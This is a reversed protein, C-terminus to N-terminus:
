FKIQDYSKLAQYLIRSDAGTLAVALVRERRSGDKERAKLIVIGTEISIALVELPDDDLPIVQHKTADQHMVALQRQDKDNWWVYAIMSGDPSIQVSEIRDSDFVQVMPHLERGRYIGQPLTDSAGTLIIPTESDDAFVVDLVDGLQCTWNTLVGFPTGVAESLPSRNNDVVVVADGLMEEARDRLEFRYIGDRVVRGLDDLGDWDIQGYQAQEVRSSAFKRVVAGSEDVVVVEIGASVDQMLSLRFFFTTDDKVGDGNPSFYPNRVFFDGDQVALRKQATNNQESSEAILDEPDVQVVLTHVAEAEGLTWTFEAMATGRGALSVRQDDGIQMGAAHDEVVRVVVDAVGQEGLNMVQVQMRVTQGGAPFGPTLQIDAADLALDPRSLVELVQFATNDTESFESITNDPDARVVVLQDDANPLPAWTFSVPVSSKSPLLAIVQPSGLQQGNQDPDGQYFAVIVNRADHSGANRVMASLTLAQGELGPNPVFIMDRFDVTLNPGDVEGVQFLLSAVNNQEETEPVLNNPDLHVILTWDGVQDARWTLTREISRGAEIGVNQMGLDLTEHGKTLEYRVEAPPALQTGANHLRVTFTVDSGAIGPVPTVEIDSPSVRLDVSPMTEITVSATNDAENREAIANAADAVVTLVMAGPQTLVYTFNVVVSQRSGIQYTSEAVPQGDEATGVWLQVRVREADLIGTNRVTASLGLTTPLSAPRDPIAHLSIVTLEVGDPAPAVDIIQTARNDQESVETLTAEPDAVAVLTHAGVAGFTEWLVSLTTM